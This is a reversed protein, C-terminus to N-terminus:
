KQVYSKYIWGKKGNFVIECWQQCSILEVSSRAPVVGLVSAGKKPSSRMNVASRIQASGAAAAVKVPQPDEAEDGPEQVAVKRAAAKAPSATPVPAMMPIAATPSPDTEAFASAIVEGDAGVNAAVAAIAQATPVTPKETAVAVDADWEASAWGPNNNVTGGSSATESSRDQRNDQSTTSPQEQFVSPAEVINAAEPQPQAENVSARQAAAHPLIFLAGVATLSMCATMALVGCLLRKNPANERWSAPQKTRGFVFSRPSAVGQGLLKKLGVRWASGILKRRTSSTVPRLM